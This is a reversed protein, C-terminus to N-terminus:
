VFISFGEMEAMAFPRDDRAIDKPVKRLLHPFLDMYAGERGARKYILRQTTTNKMVYAFPINDRKIIHIPEPSAPFSNHQKIRVRIFFPHIM